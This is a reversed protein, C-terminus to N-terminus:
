KIRMRIQFRYIGPAVKGTNWRLPVTIVSPFISVTRRALSGPDLVFSDDSMTLMLQRQHLVEVKIRGGAQAAAAG